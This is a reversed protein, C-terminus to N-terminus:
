HGCNKTKSEECQGRPSAFFRLQNTPTNSVVHGATVILRRGNWRVAAGSGVGRLAEGDDNSTVVAVTHRSVAEEFADVAAETMRPDERMLDM